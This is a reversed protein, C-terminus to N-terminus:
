VQKDKWKGRRFWYTMVLGNSLNALGLGIWVGTTGLGAWRALAYGAPIQVGWLTLLNIVMPPFTAGAGDLGRGMAVGLGSFILSSGVIRLGEGGLRVVHPDSNFFAVMPRALILSTGAALAMFITSYGGVLWATREARAPKGAGLNQGVLTAAANGLGFGPILAIMRLRNAVGYAALAATGYAGMIGIMTLRSVSRLTMQVTSPLAITAIRWMLRPDFRLQGLDLRIRARGTGLYVLQLGLGATQALVTSLAAGAVGWQPFPGWGFILFPEILINLGNAVALVSLAESANGAGRLLSNLIPVLIIAWLGAFTVRLFSLGLPMVDEGAGCLRLLPEMLVLGAAALSVAVSLAVIVVQWTAHNAAREDGEGIRRAVVALGGVGLGMSLASICWRVTTSVTVAALAAPSIRGVWLLDFLQFLSMMTMELTMPLGLQWIARNLSGETLAGARAKIDAVAKVTL